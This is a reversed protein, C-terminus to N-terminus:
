LLIKVSIEDTIQIISRAFKLLLRRVELTFMWSNLFEIEKNKKKEMKLVM